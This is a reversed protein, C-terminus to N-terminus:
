PKSEGQPLQITLQQRYGTRHPSNAPLRSEIRLQREEPRDPTRSVAIEVSADVPGSPTEVQLKWLEGPYDAKGRLMAAARSAGSEVLWMAQVREFDTRAQRQQLV